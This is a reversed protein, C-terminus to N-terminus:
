LDDERNQFTRMSWGCYSRRASWQPFVKRNSWYRSQVVRRSRSSPVASRIAAIFRYGRGVETRVFGRDEGLARRLAFVQTKLNEEAVAMGPWIRAYLQQKNVLAGNAEVLALLLEFARTGLAIPV